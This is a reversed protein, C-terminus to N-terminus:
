QIILKGLLINMRAPNLTIGGRPPDEHVKRINDNMYEISIQSRKIMKLFTPGVRRDHQRNLLHPVWQGRTTRLLPLMSTATRQRPLLLGVVTTFLLPFVVNENPTTRPLIPPKMSPAASPRYINENADTRRAV